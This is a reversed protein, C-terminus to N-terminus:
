LRGQRCRSLFVPFVQSMVGILELLEAIAGKGDGIPLPGGGQKRGGNKYAAQEDNAYIVDYNVEHGAQDQEDQHGDNWRFSDGSVRKKGHKHSGDSYQADPNHRQIITLLSECFCCEFVAFVAYSLSHTHGQSINNLESFMCYFFSPVFNTQGCREEKEEHGQEPTIQFGMNKGWMWIKGIIDGKMM